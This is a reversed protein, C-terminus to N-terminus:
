LNKMEMHILFTVFLIEVTNALIVVFDENNKIFGVNFKLEFYGFLRSIQYVELLLAGIIMKTRIDKYVRYTIKKFSWLLAITLPVTAFFPILYTVFVTASLIM